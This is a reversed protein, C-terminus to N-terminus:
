YEEERKQITFQTKLAGTVVRGDMDKPVPLGFLHLITPAIDYINIDNLHGSKAIDPGSAIFIGKSKHNFDDTKVFEKPLLVPMISYDMNCPVVVIDPANNLYRGHYVEEKPLVNSFIRNGDPDKISKLDNILGNVFRQYESKSDFQKNVWIGLSSSSNCSVESKEFDVHKVVREIHALVPLPVYRKIFNLRFLSIIYAITDFPIIDVISTYINNKEKVIESKFDPLTVSKDSPVVAFGRNKLWTNIYFNWRVRGMGHDSVIIVNTTNHDVNELIRGICSDIHRYFDRHHEPDKTVHFIEDTKQFVVFLFDWPYNEMLYSTLNCRSDALIRYGAIKKVLSTLDTEHESYIRYKGYKDEFKKLIDPPYTKTNEPSLYGPIIIGNTKKPPYTVPVNIVISFLNNKSLIDWICEAKNDRSDVIKRKYEVYKYFDFIGHKGPNKGTSLSTWAPATWPPITSNQDAYVGSEKLSSLNPLDGESIWKDLINFSAADLGIMLLKNKM